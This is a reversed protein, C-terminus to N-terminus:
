RYPCLTIGLAQKVKDQAMGFEVFCYDDTWYNKSRDLIETADAESVREVWSWKGTFSDPGVNYCEGDIHHHPGLLNRNSGYFKLEILNSGPTIYPAIDVEYTIKNKETEYVEQGFLVDYVKQPQSFDISLTIENNGEVLWPKISMRHFSKDKWYGQREVSIEQGNVTIGYKEMDEVM